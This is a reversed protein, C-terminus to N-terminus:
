KADFKEARTITWASILTLEFTTFNYIKQLNRKPVIYILFNAKQCTRKILVELAGDKLIELRARSRKRKASHARAEDRLVLM